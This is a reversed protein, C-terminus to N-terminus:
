EDLVGYMTIMLSMFNQTHHNLKRMEQLHIELRERIQQRYKSYYKFITLYPQKVRNWKASYDEWWDCLILVTAIIKDIFNPDSVLILDYVLDYHDNDLIYKISETQPLVSLQAFGFLTEQDVRDLAFRFEETILVLKEESSILESM